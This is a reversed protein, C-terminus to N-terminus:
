FLGKRPDYAHDKRWTEMFDKLKDDVKPPAVIKLEVRQDGRTGGSNRPVAKPMNLRTVPPARRAALTM